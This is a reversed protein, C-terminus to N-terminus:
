LPPEECKALRDLAVALVLLVSDKTSEFEALFMLLTAVRVEVPTDPKEESILRIGTLMPNIVRNAGTIDQDAQALAWSRDDGRSM